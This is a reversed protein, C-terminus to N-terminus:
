VNIKQSGAAEDRIFRWRFVKSKRRCKKVIAIWVCSFTIIYLQGKHFYPIRMIKWDVISCVTRGMRSRLPLVVDGYICAYIYFAEHGARVVFTQCALACTVCSIEMNDDRWVCWHKGISPTFNPPIVIIWFAPTEKKNGRRPRTWLEHLRKLLARAARDGAKWAPTVQLDSWRFQPVHRWPLCLPVLRASADLFFSGTKISAFCGREGSRSPVRERTEVSRARDM